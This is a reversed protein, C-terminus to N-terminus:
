LKIKKTQNENEGLQSELYKQEVEILAQHYKDTPFDESLTKFHEFGEKFEPLHQTELLIKAIYNPSFGIFSMNDIIDKIVTSHEQHQNDEIKIGLDKMTKWTEYFHEDNNFMHSGSVFKLINGNDKNGYKMIANFEDLLYLLDTNIKLHDSAFMLNFIDHYDIAEQHSKLEHKVEEFLFLKARFDNIEFMLQFKKRLDLHLETKELNDFVWQFVELSNDYMDERTYPMVNSQVFNKFCPAFDEKSQAFKLMQIDHHDLLGITILDETALAQYITNFQGIQYKEKIADLKNM